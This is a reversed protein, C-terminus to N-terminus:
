ASGEFHDWGVMRVPEGDLTVAAAGARVTGIVRWPAGSTHPPGSERPFTALLSHEEGGGLVHGWAEEATHVSALPAVFDEDLSRRDLDLLVGSARAVRGADRVLGDSLDIMSTAGAAAAVPGAEWPPRPRRHYRRWQAVPGLDEAGRAHAALGAGSWGLSGCVALVDGPRAGSRLVPPRGQLEGWMTMSVHLVGPPASSLDGGVVTVAAAASWEGLGAAFREVWSVPTAPDATVTLLAATAVGGMAAIDSINQAGLKHAVDTPTSWDDRWDRERIMSDTTIVVPGSTLVVAADDGPGVVVDRGDTGAPVHTGRLLPLIRELIMDEGLGALPTGPDAPDPATM